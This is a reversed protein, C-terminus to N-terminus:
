GDSLGYGGDFVFVRGPFLETLLDAKPPHCQCVTKHEIEIIDQADELVEARHVKEHCKWEGAGDTVLQKPPTVTGEGARGSVGEIYGPLAVDIEVPGATARVILRAIRLIHQTGAPREQIPSM